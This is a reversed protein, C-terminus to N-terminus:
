GQLSPVEPHYHLHVMASCSQAPFHTGMIDAAGLMVAPPPRPSLCVPVTAMDNLGGTDGVARDGGHPPLSPM